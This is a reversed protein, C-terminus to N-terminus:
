FDDDDDEEERGGGGRGSRAALRNAGYEVAVDAAMIGAGGVILLTYVASWRMGAVRQVNRMVWGPPPAAPRSKNIRPPSSAAADSAAAPAAAGPAGTAATAADKAGGDM